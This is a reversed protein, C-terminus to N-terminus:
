RLNLERELEAIRREQQLYPDVRDVAAENLNRLWGIPVIFWWWFTMIWVYGVAEERHEARYQREYSGGTLSPWRTVHRRWKDDLLAPVQRIGLWRGFACSTVLIGLIILAILM